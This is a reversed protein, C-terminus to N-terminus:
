KGDRLKHQYGLGIQSTNNVKARLSADKDLDYKCGIGFRTDNSGASWALQIGTELNPSVKQYISGGFEQGDNRFYSTFIFKISIKILCM